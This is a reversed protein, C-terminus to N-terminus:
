VSIIDRKGEAWTLTEGEAWVWEGGPGGRTGMGISGEEVMM